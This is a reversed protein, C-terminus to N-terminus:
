LGIENQSQQQVKIYKNSKQIKQNYVDMVYLKYRLKAIFNPFVNNKCALTYKYQEEKKIFDRVTKDTMYKSPFDTLTTFYFCTSTGCIFRVGQCRSKVYENLVMALRTPQATFNGVIDMYEVIKGNKDVIPYVGLKNDFELCNCFSKTKRGNYLVFKKNEGYQKIVPRKIIKM